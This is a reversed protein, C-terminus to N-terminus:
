KKKGRVPRSLRIPIDNTRPKVEAELGSTLFRTYKVDFPLEKQEDPVDAMDLPSVLIRYTGPQLGDGPQATSLEYHGDPQVMGRAMVQGDAREFVVMGKTLASGDDLTVQGRVPYQAPGCGALTPLLALLTSTSLQRFLSHM